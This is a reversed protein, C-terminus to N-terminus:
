GESTQTQTLFWATNTTGRIALALRALWWSSGDAACAQATLKSQKAQKGIYEPKTSGDERGRRNNPLVPAPLAASLYKLSCAHRPKGVM